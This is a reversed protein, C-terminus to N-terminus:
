PSRRASTWAPSRTPMRYGFALDARRTRTRAASDARGEPWSRRWFATSDILEVGHERLVDAVAAIIADTNKAKIRMLLGIAMM